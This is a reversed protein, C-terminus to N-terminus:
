GRKRDSDYKATDECKPHRSRRSNESRSVFEVNGPAYGRMPNIRDITLGDVFGNNEAFNRFAEFNNWGDFIGIGKGGYYKYSNHNVNSCRTRM